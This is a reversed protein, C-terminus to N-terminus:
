KTLGLAKEDIWIGDLGVSVLHLPNDATKFEILIDGKLWLAADQEYYREILGAPFSEFLYRRPEKLLGAIPAVVWYHLAARRNKGPGAVTRKPKARMDRMVRAAFEAAGCKSKGGRVGAAIAVFRRRSRHVRLQHEHPQYGPCLTLASM